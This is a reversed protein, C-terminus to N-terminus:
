EREAMATIVVDVRLVCFFECNLGNFIRRSRGATAFRMSFHKSPVISASPLRYMWSIRRAPLSLEKRRQAVLATSVTESGSDPNTQSSAPSIIPFM